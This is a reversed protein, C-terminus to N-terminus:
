GLKRKLYDDLQALQLNVDRQLADMRANMAAIDDRNNGDGLAKFRQDLHSQLQAFRSGEQTDLSTRLSDMDRLLKASDAQARLGTIGAWFYFLLMLLTALILLVLGLPVSKEYTVFGLNVTHPFMLSNTNLLAFIAMLVLVVILVATRM